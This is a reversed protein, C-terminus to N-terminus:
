LTCLGKVHIVKLEVV